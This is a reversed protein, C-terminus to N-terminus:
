YKALHGAIEVSTTNTIDAGHFFIGVIKNSEDLLSTKTFVYVKWEYGAYTHIDLTRMPKSTTIVKQDQAQFLDSFRAADCPMDYDTRGMMVEPSKIGLARAFEGNGYVYVSNEDKCAWVGPLQDFILKLKPDIQLLQESM